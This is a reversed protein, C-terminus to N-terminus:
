EVDVSVKYVLKGDVTKDYTFVLNNHTLTFLETIYGKSTTKEDIVDVTRDKLYSDLIKAPNNLDDEDAAKEKKSNNTYTCIVHCNYAKEFVAGVMGDTKFPRPTWSHYFRGKSIPQGPFNELTEMCEMNSPRISEKLVQDYYIDIKTLSSKGKTHDNGDTTFNYWEKCDISDGNIGSPFVAVIPGGNLSFTSTKGPLTYDKDTRESVRHIPYIIEKILNDEEDYCFNAKEGDMIRGYRVELAPSSQPGINLLAHPPKDIPSPTWHEGDETVEVRLLADVMDTPHTLTKTLLSQSGLLFIPFAATLNDEPYSYFFPLRFRLEKSELTTTWETLSPINGVSNNIVDRNEPGYAWDFFNRIWGSSFHDLVVDGSKFTCELCTSPGLYKCWKIRVKGKIEDKVSVRPPEIIATTRVLFDNTNDVKFTTITVNLNRRMFEKRMVPNSEVKLQTKSFGHWITSNFGKFFVTKFEPIKGGSTTAKPIYFNSFKSNVLRTLELQEPNM